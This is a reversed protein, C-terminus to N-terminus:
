SGKIEKEEIALSVFADILKNQFGYLGPDKLFLCKRAVKTEEVFSITRESSLFFFIKCCVAKSLTCCKFILQVLTTILERALLIFLLRNM